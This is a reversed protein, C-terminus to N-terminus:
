LTLNKYQGWLYKMMKVFGVLLLVRANGQRLIINSSKKNKRMVDLIM